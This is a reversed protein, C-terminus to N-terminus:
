CYHKRKRHKTGVILVKQGPKVFIVLIEKKKPSGFGFGM